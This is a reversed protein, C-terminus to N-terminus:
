PLHEFNYGRVFGIRSYYNNKICFLIILALSYGAEGCRKVTAAAPM